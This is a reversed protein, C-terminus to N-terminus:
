DVDSLKVPEDAAVAVPGNIGKKRETETRRDFELSDFLM